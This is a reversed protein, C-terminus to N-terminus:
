FPLDDEKVEVATNNERNCKDAPKETTSQERPTLNNVSDCVVETIYITKGSQDQYNRTQISGSLAMLNGKKIYNAIFEAQQRWAVCSIFDSQNNGNADKFGRDVAITFSVVAAGSPTYKIEPDKTIRGVLVVKNM